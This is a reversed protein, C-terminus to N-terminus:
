FARLRISCYCLLQAITSFRLSPLPNDVRMGVSLVSFGASGAVAAGAVGRAAGVSSSGADAKRSTVISEM